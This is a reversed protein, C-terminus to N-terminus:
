KKLSHRHFLVICHNFRPVSSGGNDGSSVPEISAILGHKRLGDCIEEAEEQACVIVEAVNYNHAEDMIRYADEVGCGVVKVLVKVVFNRENQDDNHLLGM